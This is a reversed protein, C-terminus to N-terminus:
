TGKELWANESIAATLEVLDKIAHTRVYDWGLWTFSAEAPLLNDVDPSLVPYGAQAFHRGLEASLLGQAVAAVTGRAGAKVWAYMPSAIAGEEPWVVRVQGKWQRARAFSWPVIYIAAKSEPGGVRKVMEAPHWDERINKALRVVGAEGHEKYFHLLPVAAFRQDHAGDSIILDAYRPDLLDSWRRPPPLAGLRAMDVLLVHVGASYPTYWGEADLLGASAFAPHVRGHNASAFCGQAVFKRLFAPTMFDGYGISATVGPLEDVTAVDALDDYPDDGHCGAPIHCNLVDGTAKHYNAALADFHDRLVQRVPCSVYALLDLSSAPQVDQNSLDTKGDTKGGTKGDTKCVHPEPKSQM